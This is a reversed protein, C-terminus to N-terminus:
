DTITTSLCNTCNKSNTINDGTANQSKIIRAYRHPFSLLLKKYEENAKEWEEENQIISQLKQEYEEKKLPQNLWYYSQNRIGVCGFCNTLGKCDYCLHCDVLSESYECFTSRSCDRCHICEYCLESKQTDLCDFCEKCHLIRSGYACDESYLISFGLYCNKNAVAYNTYESNLSKINNLARRPVEKLLSQFQKLFPESFNYNKGFTIPDWKDGYWCTTCFVRYPSDPSYVSIIDKSCLDCKRKHFSRENRFTLRRQTRCDPCWTPPPVKIKGYFAFDDPEIVFDQKCNKCQKATSEM